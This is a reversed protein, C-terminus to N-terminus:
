TPLAVSARFLLSICTLHCILILTTRFIPIQLLKKVSNSLFEGFKRLFINSGKASDLLLSAKHGPHAGGGPLKRTSAETVSLTSLLVM